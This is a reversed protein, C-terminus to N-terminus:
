PYNVPKGETILPEEIEIEGTETEIIETETTIVTHHEEITDM